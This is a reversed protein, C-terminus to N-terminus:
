SALSPEAQYAAAQLTFLEGDPHPVAARDLLRALHGRRHDRRAPDQLRPLQRLPRHEVPKWIDYVTLKAAKEPM